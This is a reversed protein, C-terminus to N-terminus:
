EKAPPFIEHATWCPEWGAHLKLVPGSKAQRNKERVTKSEGIIIPADSLRIVGMPAGANKSDGNEQANGTFLVYKGDPSVHGGYVHRGEQAYVLQLDTGDANAMWLQTWGYGKNGEKLQRNSYIMRKSDPFWDPTCCDERSVANGEGTEVNMRADQWSAGFANSVGSLWKGDPSWTLQQFFGNRKLTRVTQGSEIDIFAIGKLSLTAIQKGDPSWSAWPLEGIGGLAKSATGDSKALLLEGQSGHHNGDFVEDRKTKRYLMRTGDRSILVYGENSAPTNTLNKKQSGDPRCAFLDWDGAEARASFVIWGKDRVEDALQKEAADDAAHLLSSVLIFGLATCIVKKM